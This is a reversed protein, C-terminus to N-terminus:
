HSLLERTVDYLRKAADKDFSKHEVSIRKGEVFASLPEAPPANIIVAIPEISEKVPKGFKKMAVIHAATPEDYEGSFSTSTTGPHFLVYRTRGAGRKGAFAVGLLDNLKGGQTLATGGNYGQELGLDDWQIVSIDAGPGAVNMIIPNNAKELLEVLGHSLLFRSLYFLAFNDEFGEATELRTTRYHRACLVLADVVSFKSKIEEIVKKNESVLSLDAQIFFFRAGADIENAAEIFARGKEKNRGIVIINDGRILYTLALAKGIGDTGGSIVINKM